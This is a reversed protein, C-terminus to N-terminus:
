DDQTAGRLILRILDDTQHITGQEVEYITMENDQMNLGIIRLPSRSNKLIQAARDANDPQDGEILVIDPRAAALQPSLEMDEHSAGAWVLEPHQLIAKLAELFMLHSWIVFVKKQTM